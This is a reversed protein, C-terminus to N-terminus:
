LLPGQFVRFLTNGDSVGDLTFDAPENSLKVRPTLGCVAARRQNAVQPFLPSAGCRFWTKADRAVPVATGAGEKLPSNGVQVGVGPHAHGDEATTALKRAWVKTPNPATGVSVHAHPCAHGGGGLEPSSSPTARPALSPTGDSAGTAPVLRTRSVPLATPVCSPYSLAGRIRAHQRTVM